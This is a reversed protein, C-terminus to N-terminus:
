EDPPLLWGDTSAKLHQRIPPAFPLIKTQRGIATLGPGIPANRGLRAAGGCGMLAVVGDAGEAGAGVPGADLELGALASGAEAGLGDGVGVEM